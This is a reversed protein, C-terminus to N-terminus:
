PRRTITYSQKLERIYPNMSSKIKRTLIFSIVDKWNEDQESSDAPSLQSEFLCDEAENGIIEMLQGLKERSVKIDLHKLTREIMAKLRVLFNKDSHYVVESPYTKNYAHNVVESEEPKGIPATAPIAVIRRSM